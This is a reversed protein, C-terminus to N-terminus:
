VNNFTRTEDMETHIHLTTPLGANTKLRLQTAMGTTSRRVNEKRPQHHGFLNREKRKSCFVTHTRTAQSTQSRTGNRSPLPVGQRIREHQTTAQVHKELRGRRRVQNHVTQRTREQKRTHNYTNTRQQLNTHLFIRQQQHMGDTGKARNADAYKRLM